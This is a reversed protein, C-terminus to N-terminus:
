GRGETDRDTEHEDGDDGGRDDAVHLHDRFRALASTWIREVRRRQAALPDTGRRTPSGVPTRPPRRDAPV